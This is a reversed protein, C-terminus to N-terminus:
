HALSCITKEREFFEKQLAKFKVETEENSLVGHETILGTILSLPLVDHSYTEHLYSMGDSETPRDERFALEYPEDWLSFKNTALMVYTEIGQAHLQSLLSASGPGMVIDMTNTLSLGGFIACDIEEMVHAISFESIVRYSYGREQLLRIMRETKTKEQAALFIEPKEPEKSLNKLLTNITSSYSHLLINKSDAIVKMTHQVSEERRARKMALLELLLHRLDSQSFERNTITEALLIQLDLIINAMRPKCGLVTRYIEYLGRQLNESSADGTYEDLTEILAIAFDAGLADAGYKKDLTILLHNITNLFATEM